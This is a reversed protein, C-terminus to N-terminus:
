RQKDRSRALNFLWLSTLRLAYIMPPLFGHWALRYRAPRGLRCYCTQADVDEARRSNLPSVVRDGDRSALHSRQEVVKARAQLWDRALAQASKEPRVRALGCCPIVQTAEDGHQV